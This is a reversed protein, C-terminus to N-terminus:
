FEMSSLATWKAGVGSRDLIRPNWNSIWWGMHNQNILEVIVTMSKGDGM